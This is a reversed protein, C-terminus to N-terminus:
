SFLWSVYTEGMKWDIFFVGAVTYPGLYKSLEPTHWAVAHWLLQLVYTDNPTPSIKRLPSCKAEVIWLQENDLILGHLAPQGLVGSTSDCDWM